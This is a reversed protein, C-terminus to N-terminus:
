DVLTPEGVTDVLRRRFDLWRETPGLAVIVVREPRALSMAQEVEWWLSTTNGARIVVLAARRMLATITDKWSEDDVYLRAAGLEPLREGPKGIAVMPGVRELLWTLEELGGRPHGVAELLTAQVSVM